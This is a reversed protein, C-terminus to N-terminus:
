DEPTHRRQELIQQREVDACARYSTADATLWMPACRVHAIVGAGVDTTLLVIAIAIALAALVVIWGALKTKQAAMARLIGRGM